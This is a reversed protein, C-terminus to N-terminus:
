RRPSIGDRDGPRLSLDVSQSGEALIIQLVANAVHLAIAKVIAIDGRCEASHHRSACERCTRATWATTTGATGTPTTGVAASKRAATAASTSKATAAAAATAASKASSSTATATESATSSEAATESAETPLVGIRPM